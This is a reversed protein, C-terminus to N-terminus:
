WHFVASLMPGSFSLDQLDQGSKMKYGLYRWSGVVDGWGFSRGVGGVVQATWKSEGVGADLYYPIFWVGAEGFKVRGKVGVIADVNRQRSNRAGGRDALAVSGINGTLTWDLSQQIDLVRVGALADMVYTPKTLARWEGAVTWAWGKLDYRADAAAGVPLDVAGLTLSRTGSRSAGFDVYVLDTFAGWTGNSAELSGMFASQLHHLINDIDIGAASGGGGSYPFTTSGSVSPLYLNLSGTFQWRDAGQASAITPCLMAGACLAAAVPGITNRLKM